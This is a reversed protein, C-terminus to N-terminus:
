KYTCLASVEVVVRQLASAGEVGSSSSSGAGVVSSSAIGASVGRMLERAVTAGHGRQTLLVTNVPDAAWRLLLAKAFGYDLSLDTALVVKPGTSNACCHM